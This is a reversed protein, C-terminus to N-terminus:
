ACHRRRRILLGIGLWLGLIASISSPEPVATIEIGSIYAFTAPSMHAFSLTIKGSVDPALTSFQVIMSQNNAAELLKTESTAGAITVDAARSDAVGDRSGVLGFSYTSGSDLGGIEIVPFDQDGLKFYWNDQVATDPFVGIAGAYGGANIGSFPATISFTVSTPNNNSDVLPFDALLKSADWDDSTLNNWGSVDTTRGAVPSGVDILITQASALSLSLVEFVGVLLFQINKNAFKMYM